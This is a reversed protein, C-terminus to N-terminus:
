QMTDAVPREQLVCMQKRVEMGGKLSSADTKVEIDLRALGRCIDGPIDTQYYRSADSLLYWGAIDRSFLEKGEQSTGRLSVSTVTIYVNGTNHVAVSLAGGSLDIEKIEWSVQERRPKVFIPIASRLGMAAARKENEQLGRDGPQAIEEVILHYAKERSSSAGKAGARIVQRGGADLVINKPYFVVDSTDTHIDRGEVDQGWEYATVRLLLRRAGENVLSLEGSKTDVGFELAPPLVRLEGAQAFASATIMLMFVFAGTRRM